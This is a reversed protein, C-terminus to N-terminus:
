FTRPVTMMLASQRWKPNHQQTPSPALWKQKINEVYWLSLLKVVHVLSISTMHVRFPKLPGFLHNTPFVSAVYTHPVPNSEKGDMGFLWICFDSIHTSLIWCRPPPSQGALGASHSALSLSQRLVSPPSGMLHRLSYLYRSGLRIAQTQEWSGVHYPFFLVFCLLVLSWFTARACRRGRCLFSNMTHLLFHFFLNSLWQLGVINIEDWVCGYAYVYMCAANNFWYTRIVTNLLCWAGRPIQGLLRLIDIGLELAQLTSHIQIGWAHFHKTKSPLSAMWSGPPSIHWGWSRGAFSTKLSSKSKKKKCIYFNLASGSGSSVTPMSSAPRTLAQQRTQTQHPVTHQPSSGAWNGQQKKEMRPLSPYPHFTM